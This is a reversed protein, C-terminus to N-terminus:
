VNDNVKDFIYFNVIAHWKIYKKRNKNQYDMRKHKRRNIAVRTRVNFNLQNLYFSILKLIM